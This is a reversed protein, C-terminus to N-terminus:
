HCLETKGTVKYKGGGSSAPLTFLALTAVCAFFKKIPM